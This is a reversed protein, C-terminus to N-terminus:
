PQHHVREQEPRLQLKIQLEQLTKLMIVLLILELVLVIQNFQQRWHYMVPGMLSSQLLLFMVPLRLHEQINSHQLYEQMLLMLLLVPIPQM